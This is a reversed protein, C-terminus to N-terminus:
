RQPEALSGQYLPAVRKSVRHYYRYEQSTYDFFSEWLSNGDEDVDAEMFLVGDLSTTGAKNDRTDEHQISISEAVTPPNAV